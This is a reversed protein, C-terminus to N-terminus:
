IVMMLDFKSRKGYINFSKYIPIYILQMQFTEFTCQVKVQSKWSLEVSPVRNKQLIGIM